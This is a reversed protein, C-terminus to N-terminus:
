LFISTLPNTTSEGAVADGATRSLLFHDDFTAM